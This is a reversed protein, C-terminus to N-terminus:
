PLNEPSLSALYAVVDERDQPQELRYNMRQGPLLQEPDSLWAKIRLNDWRHTATALAQSYDFGEAKGAMRGVVGRLAPGVRNADLSHCAFCRSEVLQQGRSISAPPAASPTAQGAQALTPLLAAFLWAGIRTVAWGACGSRRNM